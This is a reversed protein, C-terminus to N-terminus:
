RDRSELSDALHTVFWRTALEAVVDLAGPEEFLHTAGPVVELAIEVRLAGLAQRNLELVTPDNAGVILLTPCRVQALADGALDVRGGRSVVAGIRVPHEAAAILAGAAGTGAGFYGIPLAALEPRGAVWEAAADLRTALLGVDFRHQGTRADVAEEDPTLLDLLLTALAAQQLRGAVARNRVSHRSSGSGHAFVIMGTAGEPMVLDADLVIGDAVPIRVALEDAMAVTTGREARNIVPDEGGPWPTSMEGEGDRWGAKTGHLGTSM